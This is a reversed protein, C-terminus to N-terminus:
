LWLSRHELQQIKLWQVAILTMANNIQGNELWKFAEKMTICHVRIDENEDDLGAYDAIKRSNIEAVYLWIRETTGGPSVLYECIKRLKLIESGSEEIAERYVVAEPTEDEEIMGAVLEVLWPNTETEIAGPRFQEVFVVEERKSDILLVAAAHGREFVERTYVPSWSGNFLQNSLM